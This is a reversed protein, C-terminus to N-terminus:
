HFASLYTPHGKSKLPFNIMKCNVVISMPSSVLREQGSVGFREIWVLGAPYCVLNPPALNFDVGGWPKSDIQM